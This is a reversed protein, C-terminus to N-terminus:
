AVPPQAPPDVRTFFPAEKWVFWTGAGWLFMNLFGFAIASNLKGFSLDAGLHCTDLELCIEKLDHEVIFNAPTTFGYIQGKAWALSSAATLWFFTFLVTLGLDVSNLAPPRDNETLDAEMFVYYFIAMMTYLFAFVGVFVFWNSSPSVDGSLTKEVLDDCSTKSSPMRFNPNSKPMSFPHSVNVKQPYKQGDCEYTFTTEGQYDCCLSFAIIALFWQLIRIFGRPENLVRWRGHALLDIIFEM